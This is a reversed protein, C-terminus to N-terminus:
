IKLSNYQINLKLDTILELTLIIFIVIFFVISLCRDSLWSANDDADKGAMVHSLRLM